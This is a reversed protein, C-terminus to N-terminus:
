TAKLNTFHIKNWATLCRWMKQRQKNWVRWPIQTINASSPRTITEESESMQPIQKSFKADESLIEFFTRNTQVINSQEADTQVLYKKHYCCVSSVCYLVNSQLTELCALPDALSTGQALHKQGWPPALHSTLLDDSDNCNMRLPLHDHWTEYCHM